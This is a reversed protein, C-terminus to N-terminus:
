FTMRVGLTILNAEYDETELNSDNLRFRYSAFASLNERFEYALSAGISYEDDERDEDEFDTNEFSGFIFISVDPTVQRGFSADVRIVNEDDEEPDSGETEERVLSSSVLFTNRGREGNLALRGRQTRTTDDDLSTRDANPDFPLGTEQDVIQGSNPDLTLTSIPRSIREQSTELVEEYSATLRTRPGIDYRLSGRASEDDDRRGYTAILEARTGATLRFGAEWTPGDVDNEPDGDDFFQYGGSGILAFSRIVQYDLGLSAQWRRVNDDDTRKAFSAGADVTWNLRDFDDGSDLVFAGAHRSEDSADDSGGDIFIQSFTYRLESTAFSGWRNTLYPSARYNQVVEENSDAESERTDLLQRTVSASADLFLLDEVAEFNAFGGINPLVTFGEDDGDTQFRGTVAADAAATLRPGDSRVVVEPTVDTLFAQDKSGDPDLDVNDSFTETVSVAPTITLEAATASWAISALAAAFVPIRCSM